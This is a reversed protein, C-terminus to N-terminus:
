LQFLAKIKGYLLKLEIIDMDLIPEYMFSNLHINEPTMINVSELVKIKKKDWIQEFGNFLLRTQNTWSNIYNIYDVNNWTYLTRRKKWNFTHTSNNIEQKMFREAELRIAIALIIKDELNMDSDSIHNNAIECILDYVKDNDNICIDFDDNWLYEKYVIKLNWFTIDKTNNKLHILNTLFLFDTDIGWFKNISKDIWYEILNRVFPILAIIHKKANIDTYCTGSRM